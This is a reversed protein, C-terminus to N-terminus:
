SGRWFPGGPFKVNYIKSCIVKGPTGVKFIEGVSGRKGKENEPLNKAYM